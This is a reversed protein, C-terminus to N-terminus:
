KGNRTRFKKYTKFIKKYWPLSLYANLVDIEDNMTSLTDDVSHFMGDIKKNSENMDSSLRRIFTDHLALDTYFKAQQEQLEQVPDCLVMDQGNIYNTRIFNDDKM